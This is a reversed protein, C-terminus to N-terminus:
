KGPHMNAYNKCLNKSYNAINSEYHTIITIKCLQQMIITFITKCLNKCLKRLKKLKSALFQTIECLKKESMKFLKPMIKCLKDLRQNKQKNQWDKAYKKCLQWHIGTRAFVSM